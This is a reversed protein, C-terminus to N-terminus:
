VLLGLKGQGAGSGELYFYQLIGKKFFSFKFSPPMKVQHNENHKKKKKFM